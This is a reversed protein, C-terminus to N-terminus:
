IELFECKCVGDAAAQVKLIAYYNGYQEFYVPATLDLVSLDYDNLLCRVKIVRPTRIVEQYDSYRTRIVARMDMEEFSAGVHTNLSKPRLIRATIDDNYEIKGDSGKTYVPIKAIKTKFDGSVYDVNETPAFPLKFCEKEKEITENEVVIAGDYKGKLLEDDGDDYKCLNNQAFNDLKFEIGEPANYAGATNILKDTWDKASQQTKKAVIDDISVFGIENEGKIYAFVGSLQMLGKIFDAQTIDPLNAALPFITPLTLEADIPIVQIKPNKLIESARNFLNSDFTIANLIKGTGDKEINSVDVITDVAPYNGYYLGDTFDFSVDGLKQNNFSYDVSFYWDYFKVTFPEIIIRFKTIHKGSTVFMKKSESWLGMPDVTSYPHLTSYFTQAHVGQYEYRYGYGKLSQADLSADDTNKSLLPIIFDGLECPYYGEENLAWRIGNNRAIASMIYASSVSPHQYQRIHGQGFDIDFFGYDASIHTAYPITNHWGIHADAIDTLENLKKDFLKQFNEANGWAFVFNIRSDVSVFTGIGREFITIGNRYYRVKHYKRPFTLGTDSEDARDALNYNNIARLNNDTKPLSINYSRNSVISQLDTFLMSQYLLYINVDKDLDVLTDNIYLEHTTM